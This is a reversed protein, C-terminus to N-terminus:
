IAAELMLNKNTKKKLSALGLRGAIITPSKLLHEKLQQLDQLIKDVQWGLM